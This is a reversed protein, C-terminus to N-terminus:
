GILATQTQEGTMSELAASHELEDLAALESPKLAHDYIAIDSLTGDFFFQVNDTTGVSSKGNFAGILLADGNESLDVDMAAEGILSGDLWVKVKEEDFSIALKYDVHTEIGSKTFSVTNAGDQFRVILTGNDIWASVADGTGASDKSILGRKWGTTDANFTLSITGADTELADTHAYERFHGGRGSLEVLDEGFLTFVPDPETILAEKSVTALEPGENTSLKLLSLDKLVAFLCSQAGYNSGFDIPSGDVPLYSEWSTYDTGSFITSLDAEKGYVFNDGIESSKTEDLIQKVVNGDVVTGSNDFGAKSALRIVAGGSGASMLSNNQVVVNEQGGNIYISNPSAVRILNEEILINKYGGAGPDSLFIGQAVTESGQKEDYLLNGRITIDHPTFGGSNFFQLLDPHLPYGGTTSALVNGELVGNYSNGTIRMIDEVAHHIYSNTVSFNQVSNLLLGFNGGSVEVSDVILGDVNRCYFNGNVDSNLVSIGKSGDKVALGTEFQIGDLTINTAGVLGLRTFQAGLPNESKITINGTYDHRLDLNGYHGDALLVTDGATAVKLAALLETQNTVRITSM